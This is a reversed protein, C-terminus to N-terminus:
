CHCRFCHLLLWRQLKACSWHQPAYTLDSANQQWHFIRQVTRLLLLFEILEPIHVGRGTGNFYRSFQCFTQRPPWVPKIRSQLQTYEEGTRQIRNARSLRSKSQISSCLTATPNMQCFPEAANRNSSKSLCTQSWTLASCQQAMRPKRPQKFATLIKWLRRFNSSNPMETGRQQTCHWSDPSSSLILTAYRKTTACVLWTPTWYNNIIVEHCYTTEFDKFLAVKKIATLSSYVFTGGEMMDNEHDTLSAHTASVLGNTNLALLTFATTLVGYTNHIPM